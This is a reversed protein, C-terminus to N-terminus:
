LEGQEIMQFIKPKDYFRDYFLTYAVMIGYNLLLLGNYSRRNIYSSIGWIFAAIATAFFICQLSFHRKIGPLREVLELHNPNCRVLKERGITRTSLCIFIVSATFMGGFAFSTVVNEFFVGAYKIALYLVVFSIVYIISGVTNNERYYMVKQEIDFFYFVGNRKELVVLRKM